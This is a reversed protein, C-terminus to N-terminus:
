RFIFTGRKDDRYCPVGLDRSMRRAWGINLWTAHLSEYPIVVEKERRLVERASILLTTYEDIPDGM